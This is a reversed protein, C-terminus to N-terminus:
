NTNNSIHRAQLLSDALARNTGNANVANAVLVNNQIYNEYQKIIKNRKKKESDAKFFYMEAVMELSDKQITLLNIENLIEESRKEHGEISKELAKIKQNSDNDNIFFMTVFVVNLFISISLGTKM